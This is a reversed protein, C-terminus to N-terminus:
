WEKRRKEEGLTAQSGNAPPTCLSHAFLVNFRGVDPQQQEKSVRWVFGPVFDLKVNFGWHAPPCTQSVTRSLKESSEFCLQLIFCARFPNLWKEHLMRHRHFNNKLCQSRAFMQRSPKCNIMRNQRVCVWVCTPTRLTRNLFSKCRFLNLM